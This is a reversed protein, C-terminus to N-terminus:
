VKVNWEKLIYKLIIGKAKRSNWLPRRGEPTDATVRYANRM